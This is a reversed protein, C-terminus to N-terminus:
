GNNGERYMNATCRFDKAMNLLKAQRITWDTPPDALPKAADRECVEALAIYVRELPKNAM